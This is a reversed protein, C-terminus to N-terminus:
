TIGKAYRRIFFSMKISLFLAYIMNGNIHCRELLVILWGDVYGRKGLVTQLAILGGYM